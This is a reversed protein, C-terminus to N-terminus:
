KKLDAAMEAPLEKRYITKYSAPLNGRNVALPPVVVYPPTQEGILALLGVSAEAVGQDYPRQSSIGAIFGNKAMNAAVIQDFNENAIKFKDPTLGATQAATVAGMAPISWSAYMGNLNPYRALVAQAVEQGKDPNDHGVAAVLKIDPYKAMLRAVFGIYRLNTVYFDNAFYMAAVNGKGGIAKALEDAIYMGLALNDSSVISVYDKGPNMGEVAQDIFVVKAGGEKLAKFASATTKGNLPISVVLSPKLVAITELDAIQKADDWNANTEAVVKVGYKAFTEKLGILQESAWDDGLWGMAIGVTFNGAKIKAAQADTIKISSGLVGTEGRQGDSVVTNSLDDIKALELTKASPATYWLPQKIDAAINDVAFSATSLALYAFLATTTKLATRRTYTM